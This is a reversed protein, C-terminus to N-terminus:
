ACYHFARKLSVLSRTHLNEAHVLSLCKPPRFIRNRVIRSILTELYRATYFNEVRKHGSFAIKGLSNWMELKPHAFKACTGLKTHTFKRYKPLRFIRNNASDNFWRKLTSWLSHPYEENKLVSFAIKGLQSIWSWLFWTEHFYNKRLYWVEHSCIIRM